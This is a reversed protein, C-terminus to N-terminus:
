VVTSSESPPTATSNSRKCCMGLIPPYDPLLSIMRALSLDAGLAALSLEADPKALFFSSMSFTSIEGSLCAAAMVLYCFANSACLRLFGFALIEDRASCSFSVVTAAGAAALGTRLRVVKFCLAGLGGTTLSFFFGLLYMCSIKRRLKTSNAFLSSLDYFSRRISARAVTRRWM